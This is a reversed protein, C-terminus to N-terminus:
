YPIKFYLNPYKTIDKFFLFLFFYFSLEKVAGNSNEFGTSKIRFSEVSSLTKQLIQSYKTFGRHKRFHLVIGYEKCFNQNQACQLKIFSVYSHLSLVPKFYGYQLLYNHFIRRHILLHKQSSMASLHQNVQFTM